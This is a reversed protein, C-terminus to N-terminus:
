AAVKVHYGTVEGATNRTWTLDPRLAECRVGTCAELPVCYKAPIQRIGRLWQNIAQPFVGLHRALDAQAGDYQKIALALASHTTTAPKNMPAVM